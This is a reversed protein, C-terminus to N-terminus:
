AFPYQQERLIARHFIDRDRQLLRFPDDDTSVKPEGTVAASALIM